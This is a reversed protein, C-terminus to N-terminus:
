LHCELLKHNLAPMKKEKHSSENLERDGANGLTLGLLVLTSKNCEATHICFSCLASPSLPAVAQKIQGVSFSSVTAGLVLCKRDHLYM